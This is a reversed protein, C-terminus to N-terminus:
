SGIEQKIIPWHVCDKISGDRRLTISDREFFLRGCNECASPEFERCFGVFTYGTNEGDITTPLEAASDPLTSLEM